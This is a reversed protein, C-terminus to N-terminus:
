ARTRRVPESRTEAERYIPRENSDVATPTLMTM